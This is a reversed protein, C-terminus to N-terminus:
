NTKLIGFEEGRVVLPCKDTCLIMPVVHRQQCHTFATCTHCKGIGCLKTSYVTITNFFHSAPSWKYYCKLFPSWTGEGLAHASLVGTLLYVCECTIFQSTNAPHLSILFMSILYISILIILYLLASVSNHKFSEFSMWWPKSPEKSVTNKCLIFWCIATIKYSFLFFRCVSDWVSDKDTTCKLSLVHNVTESATSLQM